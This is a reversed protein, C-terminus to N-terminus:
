GRMLRLANSISDNRALAYDPREDMLMPNYRLANVGWSTPGASTGMAPNVFSAETNQLPSVMSQYQPMQVAPIPQNLSSVFNSIMPSAAPMSYTPLTYPQFAPLDPLYLPNKAGYTSTDNSTTNNSRDRTRGGDEYNIRGGTAAVVPTTPQVTPTAKPPHLIAEREEPTMADIQEQTYGLALLRNNERGAMAREERRDGGPREDLSGRFPGTGTSALLNAVFNRVPEPSAAVVNSAPTTVENFGPPTGRGYTEFSPGQAVQMPASAISPTGRGYAEFSPGAAMQVPAAPTGRGYAEFGPGVINQPGSALVPANDVPMAALNPNQVIGRQTLAVSKPMAFSINNFTGYSSEVAPYPGAVVNYGPAKTIKGTKPDVTFGKPVPALTSGPSIAIGGLTKLEAMQKALDAKQADTLNPNAALAKLEAIKAGVATPSTTSYASGFALKNTDSPSYGKIADAIAQYDAAKIPGISPAQAMAPAPAPTPLGRYDSALTASPAAASPQTEATYLADAPTRTYQGVVTDPRPIGSVIAQDDALSGLYDGKAAVNPRQALPGVPNTANIPNTVGAMFGIGRPDQPFNAGYNNAATTFDTVPLNVNPISAVSFPSGTLTPMVSSAQPRMTGGILQRVRQLTDDDFSVDAPAAPAPQSAMMNNMTRAGLNAVTPNVGAGAMAQAANPGLRADARAANTLYDRRAAENVPGRMGLPDRNGGQGVDRGAAMANGRDVAAAVDRSTAARGSIGTGYGGTALDGPNGGVFMGPRAVSPTAHLMARRILEDRSM